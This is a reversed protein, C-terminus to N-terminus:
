DSDRRTLAIFAEEIESRDPRCAVIPFGAATLAALADGLVAHERLELVFRDRDSAVVGVDGRGGLAGSARLAIIERSEDLGPITLVYRRVLSHAILDDVSGCFRTRGTDLLTVRDAFGAIEELRQTTWLVAIARERAAKAVLARVGRAGEPDLDHTAEDVLMIAPECLLARAVALRRQMGKSLLGARKREERALGVSALAERSREVADRRRLGHLRGFFVLNELASIRLYFSRDGAPVLGLLHRAARPQLGALTVVGADPSVIGSLVRLLTTKGAGNPGLLAHVQGPTVTLSVDSLAARQGFRKTVGAVEIANRDVLPRVLTLAPALTAASTQAVLDWLLRPVGSATSWISV